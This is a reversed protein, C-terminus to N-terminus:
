FVLRCRSRRHTARDEQLTINATSSRLLVKAPLATADNLKSVVSGVVFQDVLRDVSNIDSFSRDEAQAILYVGNATLTAGAGIDISM